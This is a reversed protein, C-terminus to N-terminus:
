SRAGLEFRLARAEKELAPDGVEAAWVDLLDLMRQTRGAAQEELYPRAKLAGGTRYAVILGHLVDWDTQPQEM